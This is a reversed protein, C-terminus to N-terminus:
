LMRPLLRKGLVLALHGALTAFLVVHATVHLWVLDDDDSLLLVLGTLPVLVLAGLLVEETRQALIRQRPTLRPHGM